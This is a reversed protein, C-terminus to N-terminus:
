RQGAGAGDAVGVGGAMGVADVGNTPGASDIAGDGGTAGVAIGAAM